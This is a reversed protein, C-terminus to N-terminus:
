IFQMTIEQYKEATVIESFFIPGVIRKRSIACWCGIKQSHLPVKHFLHPNESSWFRSNQSNVYGSLHFWAEEFVFVKELIDVGNRVFQRFWKCYRMRKEKYIEKLEHCVQVRYPHLKLRKTARQVSGCTMGTQQSLKILPKRQSQLLRARIDELSNNSLVSPRGSRRKEGISGTERFCEVLRQVTSKNPM